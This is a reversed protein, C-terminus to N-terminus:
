TVDELYQAPNEGAAYSPTVALVMAGGPSTMFSTRMSAKAM